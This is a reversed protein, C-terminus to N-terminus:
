KEDVKSLGRVVVFGKGKNWDSPVDFHPQLAADIEARNSHSVRVYQLAQTALSPKLKDEDMSTVSQMQHRSLGEGTAWEKFAAILTSLPVCSSAEKVFLPTSALFSALPDSAASLKSRTWRFYEPVIQWVDSGKYITTLFSYALLCKHLVAPMEKDLKTPMLPDKTKEDIIHAFNSVLVRRLISGSNDRWGGFENGALIGPVTWAVSLTKQNLRDIPVIEGSVMSQFASQDLGFNEKIGYVRWLFKDFVTELVGIARGGGRTQNSLTEVDETRFFKGVLNLITSKGCGAVGKIMQIVQWSDKDNVRFLLRGLLAYHWVVMHAFERGQLQQLVDQPWEKMPGSPFMDPVRRAQAKILENFSQMWFLTHPEESVRGDDDAEAPKLQSFFISNFTPTSWDPGFSESNLLSWVSFWDIVDPAKDREAKGKYMDPHTSPQPDMPLRKRGCVFLEPLSPWGSCLGEEEESGRGGFHGNIYNNSVVHPVRLPTTIPFHFFRPGEGDVGRIDLIGNRFSIFDRDPKLTAFEIEDSRDRLFIVLNVLNSGMTMTTWHKVHDEKKVVAVIFQEIDVSKGGSMVPEWAHTPVRRMVPSGDESVEGTALPETLIPRWCGGRFKRFGHEKLKQLVFLALEHFPTFKQSPDFPMAQFPDLTPPAASDITPNVSKLFRMHAKLLDRCSILCELISKFDAALSYSSNCVGDLGLDNDGRGDRDELSNSAGIELLNQSRFQYLLQVWVFLEKNYANDIHTTELQSTFVLDRMSQGKGDVSTSGFREAAEAITTRFDINRAHPSVWANRFLAFVTQLEPLSMSAEDTPAEKLLALLREANSSSPAAAAAASSPIADDDLAASGGGEDLLEERSGDRPTHADFSLLSVADDALLDDDEHVLARVHASRNQPRRADSDSDSPARDRKRVLKPRKPASGGDDSEM